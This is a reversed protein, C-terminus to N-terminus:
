STTEQIQIEVTISTFSSTIGTILSFTTYGFLSNSGLGSEYDLGFCNTDNSGAFGSFTGTINWGNYVQAHIVGTVNIWEGQLVVSSASPTVTTYNALVIFTANENYTTLNYSNSGTLKACTINLGLNTLPDIGSFYFKLRNGQYFWVTAYINYSLGYKHSTSDQIPKINPNWSGLGLYLTSILLVVFM